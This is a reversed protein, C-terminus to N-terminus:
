PSTGVSNITGFGSMTVFTNNGFTIDAWFLTDNASSYLTWTVGDDDSTMIRDTGAGSCAVFTGNGYTISQWTIANGSTRSTWVIGDPSTMVIGSVGVACYVGGGYAVKNWSGTIGTRNTWAIVTDPSTIVSGLAAGGTAVAVFQNDDPSYTIGRYDRASAVATSFSVGGNTSFAMSATNRAIAVYKGNGYAIYTYEANPCTGNLWTIGDASYLTSTGNFTIACFGTGDSAIHRHVAGTSPTTRLTWSIGDPSTM